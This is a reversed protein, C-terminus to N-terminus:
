SNLKKDTFIHQNIEPKDDYNNKSVTGCLNFTEAQVDLRLRSLLHILKKLDHWNHILYPKYNKVILATVYNNIQM